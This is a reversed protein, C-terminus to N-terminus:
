LEDVVAASSGAKVFDTYRTVVDGPEGHGMVRGHDLWLCKSAMEEVTALGHSVLIIARAKSMLEKIKLSAKERFSADGASLAEDILLIDPEMHVVVAFGLRSYMGSSYTKMPYDIFEGLGSFEAIADEKVEIERPTLGNALAGLKINERGTLEANFGIGVSLLTTVHGNVVVRGASPPLIGAITRLLTSKGAGNHGIVGLFEGHGVSFSVNRLAEIFRTEQKPRGMRVLASKMTPRSELRARYSVSLNEVSVALGDSEFPLSM